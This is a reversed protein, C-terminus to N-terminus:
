CLLELVRSFGEDVKCVLTFLHGALDGSQETVIKGRFQWQRSRTLDAWPQRRSHPLRYLSCLQTHMYALSAMNRFTHFISTLCEPTTNLLDTIRRTMPLLHHLATLQLHLLLPLLPHQISAANIICTAVARITGAFSM